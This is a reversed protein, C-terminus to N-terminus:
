VAQRRRRHTAPARQPGVRQKEALRPSAYSRAMRRAITRIRRVLKAPELVVAESGFGLIWAELEWCLRTTLTVVVGGPIDDVVQSPHWRHTRCHTRWREALRVRVRVLEKSEDIFIGFSDHFLQRPDYVAREPYDFSERSVEVSRVRSLRFLRRVGDSKLGVVYIQHDYIVMSLPQIRLEKETGDFGVYVMDVYRHRLVADVLDDLEGSSEPLSSEGGRAAFLFKRDIHKFEASRRTREIVYALADRIGREYTSGVFLEALGSAWCAAVAAPHSPQPMANGADFRIARRRGEQVPVMGPVIQLQRIYRDAAAVTIGFTASLRNRDYTAGNVLAAVIASTRSVIGSEKAM